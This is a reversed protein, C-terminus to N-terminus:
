IYSIYGKDEVSIRCAFTTFTKSIVSYFLEKAFQESEFHGIDALVLQGEAQQFDHYKLDATLYLDAGAAKADGILFAGSGGCVAVKKVRTRCLASCRVVPLGLRAKVTSLFAETDTEEALEGVMGAGVRDYRNALPILDIAPEEYPHAKRLAELVKRELRREYVMEIRTEAEHHLEGVQGCYPNCGENARFTGTGDCNYSCSDYHGICGAGTAFLRERVREADATPVYTVVKALQEAMPRLIRCNCLGLKSTLLANVGYDLNDLNTHAAYVAIGKEVLQLVMRGTASSPTIRKLGGFILPHHSVILNCGHAIAEQVVTPTVDTTTLVGSVENDPYGVLLGANDYAEQYEPLFEQNLYTIVERLKM